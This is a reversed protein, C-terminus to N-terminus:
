KKVDDVVNRLHKADDVTWVDVTTDNDVNGCAAITFSDKTASTVIRPPCPSDNTPPSFAEINMCNYNYRLWRKHKPRWGVVAFCNYTIDGVQISPSTPYAHHRRHYVEYANYIEGLNQKAESQKARADFQLFNPFAVFILFLFLFGMFIGASSKFYSKFKKKERISKKLAIVGAFFSFPMAFIWILFLSIILFYVPIVIYNFFNGHNDSLLPILFDGAKFLLIILVSLLVPLGISIISGILSYDEATRKKKGKQETMKGRWGVM